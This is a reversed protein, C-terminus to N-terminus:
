KCTVHCPFDSLIMLAAFVKSKERNFNVTEEFDFHILDLIKIRTKHYSHIVFLNNSIVICCDISLVSETEIMRIVMEFIEIYVNLWKRFVFIYCNLILNCGSISRYKEIQKLFLSGTTPTGAVTSRQNWGGKCGEESESTFNLRMWECWKKLFFVSKVRYGVIPWHHTSFHWDRNLPNSKSFKM